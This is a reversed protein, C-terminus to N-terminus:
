SFDLHILGFVMNQLVHITVLVMVPVVHPYRRFDDIAENSINQRYLWRVLLRVVRSSIIESLWVYVSAKITLDYKYNFEDDEPKFQFLPYHPNNPGFHLVTVWCLFGLMTANEAKNRLFFTRALQKVYVEYPYDDGWRCVFALIRYVWKAM